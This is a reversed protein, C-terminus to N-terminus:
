VEKAVSQSGLARRPDYQQVCPVVAVVVNDGRHCRSDLERKKGGWLKCDLEREHRKHGRGYAHERDAHADALSVGTIKLGHQALAHLSSSLPSQNRRDASVM